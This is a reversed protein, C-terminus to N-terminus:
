RYEIQQVLHACQWYGFVLVHSYIKNEFSQSGNRVDSILMGM